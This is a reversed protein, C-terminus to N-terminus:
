KSNVKAEKDKILMSKKGIRERMYYLKSRRVKGTKLVEIKSINPSNFPVIKEVGVGKAVRRVTFTKRTGSNKIAIIIGTFAQIRQKEGEIIKTFLKITDGVRFSPLDTRIYDKEIKELLKTNM